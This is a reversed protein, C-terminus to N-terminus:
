HTHKYFKIKNGYLKELRETTLVERPPGSCVVEKHLCLINTAYGYVIDLDHTILLITLNRKKWFKQLLSYITEEGGIDIGATPEDFFLVQPNGILAWGILMRQFQGSSLNGPNRRLIKESKLGVSELMRSIKEDSDEKFHYFEKVSIPLRRFELRSLREPLYGIKLNEQGWNIEGQYPIFGLLAKFLTTKGAGNPGLIIYFEGKKVQFSLNEIVRENDFKVNLNRVKLILNEDM